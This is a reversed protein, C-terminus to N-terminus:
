SWLRATARRTPLASPDPFQSPAPIAAAPSRGYRSLLVPQCCLRPSDHGGDVTHGVRRGTLDDFLEGGGGIRLDEGGEVPRRRRERLPAPGRDGLTGCQEGPDGVDVGVAGLLEGLHDLELHALRHGLALALHGQARVDVPVEGVVGLREHGVFRQASGLIPGRPDPALGHAGQEADHRPVEGVVLDGAEGGRVEREPVRDEELM